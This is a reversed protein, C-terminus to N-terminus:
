RKARGALKTLARDFAERDSPEIAEEFRRALETLLPSSEQYLQRGQSTLRLHLVRKDLPSQRTEILDRAVLEKVARSVNTKQMCAHVGVEKSNLEGFAGLTILVRWPPLSLKHKAYIASFAESVVSSLVCLRHPLYDELRLFTAVTRETERDVLM